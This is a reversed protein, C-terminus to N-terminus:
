AHLRYVALVPLVSGALAAGYTLFGVIGDSKLGGFDIWLHRLHHAGGWLPLAGAALLVLTGIPNTALAIMRDYGLAEHGVFGLGGGLAVVVIFVPLLIGGIMMGGSFLGWIVPELKLMLTRM